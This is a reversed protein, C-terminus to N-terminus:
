GKRAQGEVPSFRFDKLFTFIRKSWSSPKASIGNPFESIFTGSPCIFIAWRNMAPHKHAFSVLGTLSSLFRKNPSVSREGRRPEATKADSVWPQFRPSNDPHGEPVFKGRIEQFFRELHGNLDHCSHFVVFPCWHVRILHTRFNVSGAGLTRRGRRVWRELHQCSPPAAVLALRLAQPRWENTSM